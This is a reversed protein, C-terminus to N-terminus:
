DVHPKPAPHMHGHVGAREELGETGNRLIRYIRAFGRDALLELEPVSAEDDADPVQANLVLVYDFRERWYAM